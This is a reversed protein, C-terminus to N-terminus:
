LNTITEYSLVKEVDKESINLDLKIESIKGQSNVECITVIDEVELCEEVFYQAKVCVTSFLLPCILGKLINNIKM